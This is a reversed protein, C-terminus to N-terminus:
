GPLYSTCEDCAIGFYTLYTKNKCYLCEGFPGFTEEMEEQAAEECEKNLKAMVEPPIRKYEQIAQVFLFTGEKTDPYDNPDPFPKYELPVMSFGM